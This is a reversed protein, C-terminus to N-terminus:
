ETEREEDLDVTPKNIIWILDSTRQAELMRQTIQFNECLKLFRMGMKNVAANRKDDFVISKGYRIPIRSDIASPTQASAWLPTVIRQYFSNLCFVVQLKNATWGRKKAYGIEEPKAEQLYSLESKMLEVRRAVADREERELGEVLAKLLPNM